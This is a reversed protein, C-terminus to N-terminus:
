PTPTPDKKPFKKLENLNVGKLSVPVDHPIPNNVLSVHTITSGQALLELPSFYTVCLCLFCIHSIYKMAM